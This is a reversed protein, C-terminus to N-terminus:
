FEVHSKVESLDRDSKTAGVGYNVTVALSLLYIAYMPSDYLPNGVFCYLGFFTQILLSITLSTMRHETPLGAVKATSRLLSITKRLSYLYVLLFILTGLIGTEALLQLVVNHAGISTVIAGGDDWTFRFSNWGTGLIPSQEWTNRAHAWLLTRGSSYQEFNFSDTFIRAFIQSAAPNFVVFVLGLAIVSTLAFRSRNISQTTPGKYNLVMLVIVISAILFIFHARKTTLSLAYFSLLFGSGLMLRSKLSSSTLFLGAYIISSIATYMGNFSYHGSLGSRYDWAGPYVMLPTSEILKPYAEPFYYFFLTAFVHLSLYLMLALLFGIKWSSTASLLIASFAMMFFAVQEYSSTGTVLVSIASLLLFYLFPLIYNGKLPVKYRSGLVHILLLYNGFLLLSLGVIGPMIHLLFPYNLTLLGLLFWGYNRRLGSSLDPLM